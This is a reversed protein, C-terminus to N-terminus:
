QNISKGNLEGKEKAIKKITEWLGKREAKNKAGKTTIDPNLLYGVNGEVKAEILYQNEILWNIARHVTIKSLNLKTAITARTTMVYNEFTQKSALWLYVRLTSAEVQSEALRKLQGKYFVIWDGALRPKKTLTTSILEGDDTFLSYQRLSLTDGVKKCLIM